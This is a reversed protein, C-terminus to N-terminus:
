KIESVIKIIEEKELFGVKRTYEEGNPKLFVSTGLVTIKYKKALEPENDIHVKRVIMTDANTKALEDLIPEM